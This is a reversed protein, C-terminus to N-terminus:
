AWSSAGERPQVQRFKPFLGADLAAKAAANVPKIKAVQYVRRGWQPGFYKVFKRQEKADQFRERAQLAMGSLQEDGVESVNMFPAIEATYNNYYYTKTFDANYAMGPNRLVLENWLATGPFPTAISFMAETLELSAAFEITEEMTAEDDGPLGLIFYGKSRIGAEETWRVADRVQQLDIHKATRKLVDQNGSEIGYHIQRCGARYMKKLLDESVRDVRALCRWRFDLKQDIFYDLIKELRKLDITFLDDIFYFNRIKYTEAVHRLEAVINEPSRQHYSRGVIGKFCFSCNYPCGRSSLITLMPEGNPAYLPYKGLDFLHRSPYPLADLDEIPKRSGGPIIQGDEKYWLGQIRDWRHDGTEWARLFDQFIFEGEGYVLFDIHPNALTAEPLSTAHPGGIIVPAGLADKLRAVLQEVYHYSTTMSTLAIVDPKFDIVQQADQEIPQSPYLGFDHIRVEHGDQEAIGALYGLGLPPYSNIMENWKPGILSIRM